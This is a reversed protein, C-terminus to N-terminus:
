TRIQSLSPTFNGPGVRCARLSPSRSKMSRAFKKAIFLSRRRRGEGLRNHLKGTGSKLSVLSDRHPPRM